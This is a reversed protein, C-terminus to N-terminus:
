AAEPSAIEKSDDKRNGKRTSRSEVEAKLQTIITNMHSIMPSYDLTPYEVVALEISLLLNKIATEGQKRLKAFSEVKRKSVMKTRDDSNELLTNYSSQLDDFLAKMQLAELSAKLVLNGDLAQFFDHLQALQGAENEGMLLKSYKDIFIQIVALDDAQSAVKGRKYAKVLALITGVIRKIESRSAVVIPTQELKRNYVLKLGMSVNAELLLQHMGSLHYTAANQLTVVEALRRSTTLFEKHRARGFNFTTFNKLIFVKKFIETNFYRRM